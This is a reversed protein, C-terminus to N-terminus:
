WRKKCKVCVREVANTGFGGFLSRNKRLVQIDTCGCRPCKPKNAEAQKQEREKEERQKRALAQRELYVRERDPQLVILNYCTNCFVVGREPIINWNIEECKPCKENYETIEPGLKDEDSLPYGCHICADAKNSIDKGCEPCKILAM